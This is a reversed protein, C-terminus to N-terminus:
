VGRSPIRVVGSRQNQVDQLSGYGLEDSEPQQPCETTGNRVNLGAAGCVGVPQLAATRHDYGTYRGSWEHGFLSQRGLEPVLGFVFQQWRWSWLPRRLVSFPTGTQYTVLGSWQWGGLIANVWGNKAFVPLDYVYGFNVLQRQDFDSSAYNAALNYSNLFNSNAYDSADDLSHSWTYALNFSLKGVHRQFSVQMANYNSNAGYVIQQISGYGLYPRYPNAGAPANGCAVEFQIGAQGTPTVGNVTDNACDAATMPQGPNYPNQAQTIPYLQNLNRQEALHTGKSGVYAVSLMMNKALERQISFSWQQVYPWIVQTYPISKPALPFQLGGGINTYGSINFQNATQVLPPSGELGETNGENGNTHEYYIGYGGRISTKGDGFPDYAFGARPAPNWLRGNMCSQPIGPSIGCRVLGNYPNGTGPVLAGAQGTISGTADIEPANAPNFAAPDFNYAQLYKEHYTGFMSIRLGLNVTLRKNM